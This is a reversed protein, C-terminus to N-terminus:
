GHGLRRWTSPASCTSRSTRLRYSAASRLLTTVGPLSQQITDQCADDGDVIFYVAPVACDRLWTCLTGLGMGEASKATGPNPSVLGFPEKAQMCVHLVGVICETNSNVITVTMNKSFHGRCEYTGDGMYCADAVHHLRIYDHAVLVQDMMEESLHLELESVFANFVGEGPPHPVGEDRCKRAFEVYSHASTDILYAFLHRRGVDNGTATDTLAPTLRKALECKENAALVRAPVSPGFTEGRATNYM